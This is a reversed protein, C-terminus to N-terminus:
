RVFGVILLTGVMTVGALIRRLGWGRASGIEADKTWFLVVGCADPSADMYQIPTSLNRGYVEVGGISELDIIEDVSHQATQTVRVGDVFTRAVCAGIMILSDDLGLGGVNAITVGPAGLLLRSPTAVVRREIDERTIFFGGLSPDNKRELFGQLRGGAQARRTVVRLPELPIADVGLRIELDLAMGPTLDIPDSWYEVHGLHNVRIRYSGADLTRTVFRGEADATWGSLNGGNVRVLAIQAGPLPRSGLESIVLGSVVQARIPNAFVCVMLVVATLPTFGPIGQSARLSRRQM